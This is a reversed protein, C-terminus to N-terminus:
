LPQLLQRFLKPHLRLHNEKIRQLIIGSLYDKAGEKPQKDLWTLMNKRSNFDTKFYYEKSKFKILKNSIPDFRPYYTQYYEAVRLKHSKLHGHLQRETEFKKDCVICSIKPM